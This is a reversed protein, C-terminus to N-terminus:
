RTPLSGASAALKAARDPHRGIVTVRANTWLEMAALVAAAAGGSGFLVVRADVPDGGLLAKAAAEFM